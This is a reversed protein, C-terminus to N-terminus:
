DNRFASIHIHIALFINQPTYFNKPTSLVTSYGNQHWKGWLLKSPSIEKKLPPTYIGIDVGMAVGRTKHANMQESVNHSSCIRPTWGWKWPGFTPARAWGLGVSGSRRVGTTRVPPRCNSRPKKLRRSLSHTLSCNRLPVEACYLSYLAM